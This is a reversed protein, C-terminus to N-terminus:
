YIFTPRGYSSRESEVGSKGEMESFKLMAVSRSRAVIRSIGM